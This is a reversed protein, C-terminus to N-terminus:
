ATLTNPVPLEALSQRIAEIEQQVPGKHRLALAVQDRGYIVTSHNRGGPHAGVEVLALKVDERLLYMAVQRAHVLQRDRRQNALDSLTFGFYSAVTLLVEAPTSRREMSRAVGLSRRVLALDVDCDMMKSVALVRNLAGEM